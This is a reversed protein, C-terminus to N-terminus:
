LSCSTSSPSTLSRLPPPPVPPSAPSRRTLATPPRADCSRVRARGGERTASPSRARRAAASLVALPRALRPPAGRAALREACVEDSLQWGSLSKTVLASVTQVPAEEEGSALAAAEAAGRATATTTATARVIRGLAALADESERLFGLGAAVERAWPQPLPTPPSTSLGLWDAVVAEAEAAGRVPRGASAAFAALADDILIRADTVPSLVSAFPSSGPARAAAPEPASALIPAAAPARASVGEVGVELGLSALLVLSQGPVSLPPRERWSSALERLAAATVLMHQQARPFLPTRAHARQAARRALQGVAEAEIDM